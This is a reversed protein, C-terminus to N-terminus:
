SELGCKRKAGSKKRCILAFRQSSRRQAMRTAEAYAWERSPNSPTTGSSVPRGAYWGAVISLRADYAEVSIRLADVLEKLERQTKFVVM